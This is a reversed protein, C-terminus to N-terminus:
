AMSQASVSSSAGLELRLRTLGLRVRSKVTGLPIGLRESIETHSLEDLFALRVARRQDTPLREIAARLLLARERDVIVDHVGDHDLVPDLAEGCRRLRAEHRSNRRVADISRNRVIRLMWTSLTAQQSDYSAAHRWADIFAAQM